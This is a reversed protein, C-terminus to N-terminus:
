QVRFKANIKGTLGIEIVDGPVIKTVGAPTGTLILDGPQLTVFQTTYEILTPIDFIMLDTRSRQQDKGNIICYLEENHPDSIESKPIFNAIPCSGDFSKALFWPAGSKKAEDQFDRATMDLAVTYGGVYSMADSKSVNKATKSIVVALEVEQHLNQCGPPAVIPEGEALFANPSKLFLMPKKPIANGLELAHEKYNRGVCVIKTALQRFASLSMNDAAM